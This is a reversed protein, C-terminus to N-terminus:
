PGCLGDDGSQLPIHLHRCLSTGASCRWCGTRSRGPSLPVSGSATWSARKRSGRWCTRLDGGGQLDRGYAGSPDGDSSRGTDREGSAAPAALCGPSSREPRAGPALYPATAARPMAATRSKLVGPYPRSVIRGCAEAERCNRIDGVLVSPEAGEPNGCLRNGESKPSVIRRATGAILRVGPIRSAGRSPVPCLLRHCRRCRRSQDPLGAPDAPPVPFGDPRHRHMHQHSCM